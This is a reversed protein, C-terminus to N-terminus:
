WDPRVLLQTLILAVSRPSNTIAPKTVEVTELRAMPASTSPSCTPPLSTGEPCTPLPKLAVSADFRHFSSSGIRVLVAGSFSSVRRRWPRSIPRAAGPRGLDLKAAAGAATEDTVRGEPFDDFAGIGGLDHALAAGCCLPRGFCRRQDLEGVGAAQLPGILSDGLLAEGIEIGLDGVPDQRVDRVPGQAQHATWAAHLLLAKELLVLPRSQAVRYPQHRNRALFLRHQREVAEGAQELQHLGAHEFDMGPARLRIPGSSGSRTVM